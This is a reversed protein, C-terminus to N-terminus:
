HKSTAAGIGSQLASYSGAYIAQSAAYTSTTLSSWPLRVFTRISGHPSLNRSVPLITAVHRMEEKRSSYVILQIRQSYNNCVKKLIDECEDHELKGLKDHLWPLTRALEIYGRQLRDQSYQLVIKKFSM